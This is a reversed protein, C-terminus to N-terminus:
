LTDTPFAARYRKATQKLLTREDEHFWPSLNYHRQFGDVPVTTLRHLEIVMDWYVSAAYLAHSLDLMGFVPDPFRNNYRKPARDLSFPVAKDHVHDDRFNFLYGLDQFPYKSADFGSENGLKAVTKWKDKVQLRDIAALLTEVSTPKGRSLLGLLDSEHLLFWAFSNIYSELCFCCMLVSSLAHAHLHGQLVVGREAVSVHEPTTADRIRQEAQENTIENRLAAEAVEKQFVWFAESGKYLMLIQETVANCTDLGIKLSDSLRVLGSKRDPFIM